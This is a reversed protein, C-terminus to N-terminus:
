GASLPLKVIGGGRASQIAALSMELAARADALTIPVPRDHVVCDLFCEVEAGVSHGFDPRYWRDKTCVTLNQDHLNISIRGEAGTVDFKFEPGRPHSAPMVWGLEACGVADNAEVDYGSDRHVGWVAETHISVPEAGAFWRMLDFDHVGLFSLVSVRGRLVEQLSAQNLRRAFIAEVRGVEGADVAEKARVYRPDFRVVHGVLVKVGGARAAAIIMDADALTTAIPKELLVHVGREICALTPAVHSPDSTAVTAAVPRVEDLMEETSDFARANFRKALAEAKGRDIDVIAV